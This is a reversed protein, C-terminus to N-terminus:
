LASAVTSENLLAVKALRRIGYGCKGSPNARIRLVSFVHLASVTAGMQILADHEQAETIGFPAEYARARTSEAQRPRTM